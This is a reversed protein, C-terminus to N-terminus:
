HPTAEDPDLVLLDSTSRMGRLITLILELEQRHELPLNQLDPHAQYFALTEREVRLFPDQPEGRRTTHAVDALVTTLASLFGVVADLSIQDNNSPM